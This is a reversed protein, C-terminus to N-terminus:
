SSAIIALLADPTDTFAVGVQHSLGEPRCWVITGRMEVRSAAPGPPQEVAVILTQGRALDEGLRLRCGRSSLDLATAPRFDGKTRYRVVLHCAVRSALRRDSGQTESM